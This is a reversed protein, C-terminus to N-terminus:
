KNLKKSFIVDLTDTVVEAFIESNYDQCRIIQKRIRYNEDEWIEPHIGGIVEALYMAALLFQSVDPKNIQNIDAYYNNRLNFKIEERYPIDNLKLLINVNNRFARRDSLSNGTRYNNYVIVNFLRRGNEMTNTLLAKRTEFLAPQWKQSYEIKKASDANTLSVGKSGLEAGPIM